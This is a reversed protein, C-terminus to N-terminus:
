RPRQHWFRPRRSLSPPPFPMVYRRLSPSSPSSPAPFPRIIIDRPRHSSFLPFLFLLLTRRESGLFLFPFFPPYFFSNRGGVGWQVAGVWGLGVRRGPYYVGGDRKKERKAPKLSDLELHLVVVVRRVVVVGGVHLLLPRPSAAAAVAAAVGPSLIQASSSVHVM